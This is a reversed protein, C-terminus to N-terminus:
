DGTNMAIKLKKYPKLKIHITCFDLKEMYRSRRWTREKCDEKM